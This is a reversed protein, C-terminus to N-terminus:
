RIRISQSTQLHAGDVKDGREIAARVAESDLKPVSKWLGPPLATEDTVVLKAKNTALTVSFLQTRVTLMGITALEVTMYARLRDASNEAAKRRKYLREEEAKIAEAEAELGRVVICCAHVKDVIDGGLSSLTDEYAQLLEPDDGAAEAAAALAQYEQRLEYLKM